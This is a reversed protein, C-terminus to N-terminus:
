EIAEVVKKVRANWWAAGASFGVKFSSEVVERGELAPHEEVVQCWMIDSARTTDDTDPLNKFDM